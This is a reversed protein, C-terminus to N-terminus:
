MWFLFQSELDIKFTHSKLFDLGLLGSNNAGVIKAGTVTFNREKRSGVQIM